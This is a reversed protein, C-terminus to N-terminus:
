SRRIQRLVDAAVVLENRDAEEIALLLSAEADPPLNFSRKSAREGKSFEIRM